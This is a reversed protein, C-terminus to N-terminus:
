PGDRRAVAVAAAGGVRRVRVRGALHGRYGIVSPHRKFRGGDRQIERVLKRRLAEAREVTIRPATRIKGPEGVVSAYELGREDRLEHFYLHRAAGGAPYRELFYQRRHHLPERR